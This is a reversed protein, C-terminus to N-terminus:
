RQAPSQKRWRHALSTTTACDADQASQCRPTGRRGPWDARTTERGPRARPHTPRAAAAPAYSGAGPASSPPGAAARARRAPAEERVHVGVAPPSAHPPVTGPTTVEGAARDLDSGDGPKSTL